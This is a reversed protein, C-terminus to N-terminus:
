WKYVKELTKGMLAAKDNESLRKTDRFPAVGEEYTLTGVRADRFGPPVPASHRSEWYRRSAAALDPPAVRGM